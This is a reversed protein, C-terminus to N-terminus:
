RQNSLTSRCRSVVTDGAGLEGVLALPVSGVGGGGGGGDGGGDGHPLYVGAIGALIVVM